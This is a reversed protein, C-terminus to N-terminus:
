RRFRAFEHRPQSTAIHHRRARGARRITGGTDRNHCLRTTDRRPFAATSRALCPPSFPLIAAVIRVQTVAAVQHHGMVLPHTLVSVQAPKYQSSPADTRSICRKWDVTALYPRVTGPLLM